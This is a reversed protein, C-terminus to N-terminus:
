KAAEAKVEEKKVEKKEKVEKLKKKYTRLYYPRSQTVKMKRVLEIKDIVPSYVPYIKEVGIGGSVKRVTMTSGPEKGHKVALVLGEFIQIREKEEGKANTEKVKQHVRVIMGSQVEARIDKIEQSM